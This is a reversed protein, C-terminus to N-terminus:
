NNPAPYTKTEGTRRNTVSFAGNSQASLEIWYGHDRQPDGEPNAIFQKAANNADGGKVAYHLQWIKFFPQNRKLIALDGINQV